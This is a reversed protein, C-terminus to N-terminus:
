KRRAGDVSPRAPDAHRHTTEDRDARGSGRNSDVSGNKAGDSGSERPAKHGLGSQGYRDQGTDKKQTIAAADTNRGASGSQETSDPQATPPHGSPAQKKREAVFSEL